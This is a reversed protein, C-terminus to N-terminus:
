DNNSRANLDDISINYYDLKYLINEIESEKLKQSSVQSADVVDNCLKLDKDSIVYHEVYPNEEELVDVFSRAIDYTDYTAEIDFDKGDLQGSIVLWKHDCNAGNNLELQNSNM